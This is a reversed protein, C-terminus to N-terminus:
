VLVFVRYNESFLVDKFFEVSTGATKNGSLIYSFVYLLRNCRKELMACHGQGLICMSYRNDYKLMQCCHNLFRWCEDKVVYLKQDQFPWPNWCDLIM